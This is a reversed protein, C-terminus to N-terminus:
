FCVASAEPRFCLVSFKLVWTFLKAFNHVILIHIDQIRRYHWLQTACVIATIKKIDNQTSYKPWSFVLCRINRKLVMIVTPYCRHVSETTLTRSRPKIWMGHVYSPRRKCPQCWTQLHKLVSPLCAVHKTPCRHNCHNLFSFGSPIHGVFVNAPSCFVLLTSSSGNWAFKSSFSSQFRSSNHTLTLHEEELHVDNVQWLAVRTVTRAYHIIFQSHVDLRYGKVCVLGGPRHRSHHNDDAHLM